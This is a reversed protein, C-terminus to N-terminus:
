WISANIGLSWLEGDTNLGVSSYETRWHIRINRQWACARSRGHKWKRKQHWCHSELLDCSPIESRIRRLFRWIECDQDAQEARQAWDEPM